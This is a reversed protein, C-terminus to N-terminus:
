RLGEMIAIIPFLNIAINYVLCLSYALQLYMEFTGYDLNLLVVERLNKGYAIVCLPAFLMVFISISVMVTTVICSFHAQNKANSYLSPLLPIGEYLGTAQSMYDMFNPIFPKFVPINYFHLHPPPAVYPFHNKENFDIHKHAKTNNVHANKPLKDNTNNGGKFVSLHSM